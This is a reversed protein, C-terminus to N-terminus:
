EFRGTLYDETEPRDPSTFIKQTQNVEVLRGSYFFATRQSVRAAQQLNQTALVITYASKLKRILEEIRATSVPDLDSAPDDMLIVEPEVALARAICLLQQQGVTLERAPTILRDHVEEWLDAERLSEEVRREILYRDKWGNIHLGYAVNDFVTKPFPNPKQFVMGVRRRLSEVDVEPAYIDEGDLLVRGTVQAGPVIDNMRNLCRLFTSKGGGAPGVLAMVESGHIQISVESVAQKGTYFCSLDSVDIKVKSNRM